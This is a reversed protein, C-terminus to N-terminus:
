YNEDEIVGTLLKENIDQLDEFDDRVMGLQIRYYEVREMAKDYEEFAGEEMTTLYWAKHELEEISDQLLEKLTEAETPQSALAAQVIKSLKM